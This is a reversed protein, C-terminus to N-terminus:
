SSMSSRGQACAPSDAMICPLGLTQFSGAEALKLTSVPRQVVRAQRM